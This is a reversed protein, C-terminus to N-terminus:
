AKPRDQPATAATAPPADMAAARVSAIGEVVQAGHELGLLTRHEAAEVNRYYGHRSETAPATRLSQQEREAGATIVSVPLAPDLPGSDILQQASLSWERVEAYANRNHSGSAFAHKKEAKAAPPLGIRDGYKGTLPKFLGMSAGIAAWKSAQAFRNVFGSMVRAQSAQRTTADVFVLGAVEDPWRQAYIPIYLGAMSHGVLIFPGKEGATDLLTHLDDTIKLADRPEPGPDSIGAGARDYACSRWGRQTAMQQVAGWDASFGFAGAEFVITPGATGAPPGECIIHLRRNDGIDVMKGRLPPAATAASLVGGAAIFVLVALVLCALLRLIM